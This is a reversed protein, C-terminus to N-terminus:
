AIHRLTEHIDGIDGHAIAANLSRERELAGAKRHRFAFENGYDPWRAAAFGRQHAQDCPQPWGSLALNEHIALFHIARKGDGAHGKLVGSQQRPPINQIIHHQGQFHHPWM